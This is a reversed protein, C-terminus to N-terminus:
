EVPQLGLNGNRESVVEYRHGEIVVKDGVEILFLIEQPRERSTLSTGCGNIWHDEGGNARNQERAKDPDEWNEIAYGLVTGVRYKEAYTAGRYERLLGLQEGHKLRIYGAHDGHTEPGRKLVRYAPSELISEYRAMIKETETAAGDGDVTYM